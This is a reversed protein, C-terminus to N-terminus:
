LGETIRRGTINLFVQELNKANYKKKLEEPTGVDIMKGYDMIGVRDSLTEAEEIYHTTLIITKNQDRLSGIFEWTNRRARADMGVTPEDLFAIKPDNILAMMLNLKRLMGGSYGGARRKSTETLGLLKLFNDTREEIKKKSMSHLNGILEVNERANLFPFFAAEQPCVGIIKKVEDPNKTVDFDTIQATGSTPKIIGTLINITTTKGAGNPGLLSFLEGECIELYLNAVATVDEFKKVLDKIIIIPAGKIKKVSKVSKTENRQIDASTVNLSLLEVILQNSWDNPINISKLEAIELLENRKLKKLLNKVDSSLVVRENQLTKAEKGM